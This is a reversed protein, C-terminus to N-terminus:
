QESELRRALQQRATAAYRSCAGSDVLAGEAGRERADIREWFGSAAPHPTLLIDCSLNELVAYSREFDTLVSPYRESRSFFFGDASVPTMSDAYVLDLCRGGECSNWSWSTGGATHGPTFHATLALPGVRLTDGDSIVRVEEVAPFPLLEGHQPDDAGSRGEKLVRASSPSAAVAAGSARQLAAIGGSHDFHAHSNLILRIDEVRFGLAETNAAIHPASEPLAGDILVHGQPSTVLIASLGNTGVYYTNGYIRVPRHPMNWEACAPCPTQALEVPAVNRPVSSCAALSLLLLTRLLKMSISDDLTTSAGLFIQIDEYRFL